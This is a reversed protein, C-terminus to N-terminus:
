SVIRHPLRPAIMADIEQATQRECRDEDIVHRAIDVLLERVAIEAERIRGFDEHQQGAEGRGIGIERAILAAFPEIGRELRQLARADEIHAMHHRRDRRDRQEADGGNEERM